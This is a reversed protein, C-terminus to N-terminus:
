EREVHRGALLDDDSGGEVVVVAHVVYPLLEAVPSSIAVLQGEHPHWCTLFHTYIIQLADKDRLAKAIAAVQM